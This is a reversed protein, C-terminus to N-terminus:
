GKILCGYLMLNREVIGIICQGCLNLETPKGEIEYYENYLLNTITDESWFSKHTLDHYSLETGALPIGYYFLGGSKLVRQAECLLSIADEGTLHELFHYAHILAVTEDDLPIKDRPWRWHPLGLSLADKDVHRTNEGEGLSIVVGDVVKTPFDGCSKNLITKIVEKIDAM